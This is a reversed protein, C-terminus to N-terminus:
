LRMTPQPSVKKGAKASARPRPGTAAPRVALTGTIAPAIRCSNAGKASARTPLLRTQTTAQVTTCARLKAGSTTHATRPWAPSLSNSTATLTYQAAPM